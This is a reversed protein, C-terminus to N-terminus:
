VRVYHEMQGTQVQYKLCNNLNTIPGTFVLRLVLSPKIDTCRRLHHVLMSSTNIPYTGSKPTNTGM